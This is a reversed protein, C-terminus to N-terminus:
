VEFWADGSKAVDNIRRIHVETYCRWTPKPFSGWAKEESINRGNQSKCGKREEQLRQSTCAWSLFSFLFLSDRTQAEFSGLAVFSFVRVSCLMNAQGRLVSRCVDFIFVTYLLSSFNLLYCQGGLNWFGTESAALVFVPFRWTQPPSWQIPTTSVISTCSFFTEQFGSVHVRPNNFIVSQRFFAKNTKVQVLCSTSNMSLEKLSPAAPLNRLTSLAIFHHKEQNDKDSQAISIM